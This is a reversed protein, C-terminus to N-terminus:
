ASGSAGPDTVADSAAGAELGSRLDDLRGLMDPVSPASMPAGYTLLLPGSAEFGWEEGGEVLWAGASGELLTRAFAADDCRVIFGAAPGERVEVEAMPAHAGLGLVFPVPEAVIPFPVPPIPAIACLLRGRRDAGSGSPGIPPVAPAFGFEFTKVEAGRWTGWRVDGISGDRARGFLSLPYGLLGFPDSPELRLGLTAAEGMVAEHRIRTKLKRSVVFTGVVFAALVIIPPLAKLLLVGVFAGAVLAGIRLWRNM